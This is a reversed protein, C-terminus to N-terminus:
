PSNPRPRTLLRPMGALVMLQILVPSVDAHAYLRGAEFGLWPMLAMAYPFWTTGRRRALRLAFPIAFLASYALPVPAVLMTLALIAAARDLEVPQGRRERMLWWALGCGAVELLPTAAGAFVAYLVRSLGTEPYASLAQAYEALWHPNWAFAGLTLPALMLAAGLGAKLLARWQGWGSVVLMVIIPGANALRISGLAVCMGALWWDGRRQAWIAGSFAVVGLATPLQGLCGLVAVLALLLLGVEREVSRHFAARSVAERYCLTQGLRGGAAMLDPRM